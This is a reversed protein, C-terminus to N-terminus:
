VPLKFLDIANGGLIRDRDAQPLDLEQVFKVGDAMWNYFIPFASGFLIHDAGCVKVACEVQEKGWTSIHTGEFYVNNKLYNRYRDNGHVDLVCSDKKKRSGQTPLMANQMGFWAGGFQTYVCKLGPLEDFMGSYVMRTVCTLQDVFRGMERRVNTWEYYPQWYVPLPTHHVVLPVGLKEIAKLHPRFVEDDLYLQGYHCAMQVAVCGLEKVCREMEYLNEKGGWPPVCAFAYLRGNSQKVMEATQTNIKKCTDLRLWEQWVPVRLMAIDVGSDDMAELKAELTYEGEIYNLNPYGKPKELVIMRKGEANVTLNAVEGYGRPATSLFGNLMEEDTFLNIPLNDMNIDVIM